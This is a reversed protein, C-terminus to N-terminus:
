NKLTQFEGHMCPEMDIYLTCQVTLNMVFNLRADLLKVPADASSLYIISAAIYFKVECNAAM